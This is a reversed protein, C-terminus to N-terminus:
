KIKEITGYENKIFYTVLIKRSHMTGTSSFNEDANVLISVCSDPSNRARCCILDTLEAPCLGRVWLTITSPSFIQGIDGDERRNLKFNLPPFSDAGASLGNTQHLINSSSTGFKVGVVLISLCCLPNLLITEVAFLYLSTNWSMCWFPAFEVSPVHAPILSM